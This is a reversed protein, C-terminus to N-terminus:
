GRRFGGQQRVPLRRRAAHEGREAVSDSVSGRSLRAPVALHRLRRRNGQGLQDGRGQVVEQSSSGDRGSSGIPSSSTPRVSFRGTATRPGSWGGVTPPSFPSPPPSRTPPSRSSGLGM